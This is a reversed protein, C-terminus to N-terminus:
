RQPSEYLPRPPMMLTRRNNKAKAANVEDMRLQEKSTIRRGVFIEDESDSSDMIITVLQYYFYM